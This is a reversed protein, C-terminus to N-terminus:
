QRIWEITFSADRYNLEYNTGIEEFMFWIESEGPQNFSWSGELQEAATMEVGSVTLYFNEYTFTHINGDNVQVTLAISVLTYGVLAPDNVDSSTLIRRDIEEYKLTVAYLPTPTPEPNVDVWHIRFSDDRYNLKYNYGIEEVRITITTEWSANPDVIFNGSTQFTSPVEVGDVTLYFKDLLMNRSSGEHNQATMTIWLDVGSDGTERHTESYSITLAYATATPTPTPTSSATPTPTSENPVNTSFFNNGALIVALIVAVVIVPIVLLKWNM